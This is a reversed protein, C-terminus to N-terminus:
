VGAFVAPLETHTGPSVPSFNYTFSLTTPPLSDARATVGGLLVLALAAVHATLLRKM